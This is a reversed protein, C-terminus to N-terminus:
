HGQEKEDKLKEIKLKLYEISYNLLKLLKIVFIIAFAILGAIAIFYLLPLITLTFNAGDFVALNFM